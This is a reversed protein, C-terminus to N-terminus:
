LKNRKNVSNTNPLVNKANPAWIEPYTQDKNWTRKLKENHTKKNQAICKQTNPDLNLPM